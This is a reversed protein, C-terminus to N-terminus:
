HLLVKLSSKSKLLKLEKSVQLNLMNKRVAFNVIIYLFLM